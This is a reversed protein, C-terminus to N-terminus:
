DPDADAIQHRHQYLMHTGIWQALVSDPVKGAVVEVDVERGDRSLTVTVRNGPILARKAEALADETATAYRMGNLAVLFDGQRLGAQEAPSKPIVKLIEPSEGEPFNLEVGLWGKGELNDVIYKLCAVPESDCKQEEGAVVPSVALLAVLTLAIKSEIRM